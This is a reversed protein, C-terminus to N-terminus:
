LDKTQAPGSLFGNAVLLDEWGDNNLDAFNCSWSWLGRLVGAEHSVYDFKGDGRNQFLSNGVALYRYAEVHADDVNAVHRKFNRQYTTRLGAASWMNSIHVDFWGNRDPDGWSVGMGFSMDEVGAEGAVDKFFVAGDENRDQRYLSNRGYDNAVYLDMDGDNDYDEWSAAFSWRTSNVELGVKATVDEFRLAGQNRYLANQGGNIANHMPVPDSLRGREVPGSYGCLYLDVLGDQDYDAACLSTLRGQRPFLGRQEFRAGEDAGINEFIVLAVLSLLALDQDGDNDLDVLLASRFTDLWAVGAQAGVERVSGDPARVFLLNPLGEPQCLYLDETGDGDVDGIALGHHFRHKLMPYRTIWHNAGYRLQEQYCPLEGLLSETADALLPEGGTLTVHVEELRDLRLWRLRPLPGDKPVVEWGCSWTATQQVGKEAGQAFARYSVQSVIEDDRPEIRFQKLKLRAQADAPWATRLAELAQGLTEADAPEPAAPSNSVWQQVRTGIQDYEIRAREVPPRLATSAFGEALLDALKAPSSSDSAPRALVAAIRALQEATRDQYEEADWQSEESVAHPPSPKGPSEVPAVGDPVAPSSASDKSSSDCGALLALAVALAWWRFGIAPPCDEVQRAPWAGM